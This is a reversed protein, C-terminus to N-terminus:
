PLTSPDRNDPALITCITNTYYNVTFNKWQNFPWVTDVKVAQVVINPNYALKVLRVNVWNTAIVYNTGKWPVDLINTTYGTFNTWGAGSPTFTKSLLNMNTADIQKGPQGPDWVGSRLQEITQVGLSQAALSYGTWQDRKAAMVYGNIIIGFMFAVIVFAFTVEWLSMVFAAEHRRSLLVPRRCTPLEGATFLPGNKASLQM